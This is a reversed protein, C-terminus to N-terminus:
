AVMVTIPYIKRISGIRIERYAVKYWRFEAIISKDEHITKSGKTIADLIQQRGIGRSQMRDLVHESRNKSDKWNVFNRFDVNLKINDM